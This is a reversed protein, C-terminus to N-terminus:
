SWPPISRCPVARATMELRRLPEDTPAEESVCCYTFIESCYEARLEPLLSAAASATFFSTTAILLVSGEPM